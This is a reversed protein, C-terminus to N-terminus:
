FPCCCTAPIKWPLRHRIGPWCLISLIVIGFVDMNRRIGVVAGSIAFAITGVMEFMNWLLLM